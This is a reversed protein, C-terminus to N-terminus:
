PERGLPGLLERLRERARFLRTKVTAEAVGLAEGIEGMSLDHFEALVFVARQEEPLAAAARAIARGIEARQWEREPDAPAQADAAIEGVPLQPRRKEDLALRTAITLIWTSPRAAADVDFGPFARFARLFAEQALDEVHPGRGLLRSLLAFVAREYRVVFARFAMPDQAKCRVLTARDIEKPAQRRPLESMSAAVMM